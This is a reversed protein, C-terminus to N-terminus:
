ENGNFSFRFLILHTHSGKLTITGVYSFGMGVGLSLVDDAESFYRKLDLNAQWLLGLGLHGGVGVPVDVMSSSDLEEEWYETNGAQDKLEYVKTSSPRYSALTGRVPHVNFSPGLHLTLLAEEGIGVFGQKANIGLIQRTGAFIFNPMDGAARVIKDSRPDPYYLGSRVRDAGGFTFFKVEIGTGGLTAGLGWVYNDITEDISTSVGYYDGLREYEVGNIDTTYAETSESMYNRGRGFYLSLFDYRKDYRKVDEQQGVVREASASDDRAAERAVERAIEDGYVNTTLLFLATAGALIKKDVSSRLVARKMTAAIDLLYTKITKAPLTNSAVSVPAVVSSMGFLLILKILLRM